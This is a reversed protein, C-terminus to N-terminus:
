FYYFSMVINRLWSLIAFLVFIQQVNRSPDRYYKILYLGTLLVGFYCLISQRSLDIDITPSLGLACRSLLGIVVPCLICLWQVVYNTKSSDEEMDGGYKVPFYLLYVFPLLCLLLAVMCFLGSEGNWETVFLYDLCGPLKGIWRLPYLIYSLLFSYCPMIVLVAREIMNNVRRFFLFAYMLLLMFFFFQFEYNGVCYLIVSTLGRYIKELYGSQYLLETAHDSVARLRNGPCLEFYIIQLLLVLGYGWILGSKLNHYKYCYGLYVTYGLLMAPLYLEMNGCYVFAALFLPYLWWVMKRNQIHWKLPFLSLFGATLPWMYTTAITIVGTENFLKVPIFQLGIALLWGYKMEKDFFLSWLAHYLILYVALNIIKWLVFPFYNCFFVTVIELINRSTWTLYRHLSYEWLNQHELVNRFMSTDDGSMSHVTVWFPIYTVILFIYIAFRNSYINKLKKSKMIAKKNIFRNKSFASM